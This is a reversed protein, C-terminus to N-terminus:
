ETETLKVTIKDPTSHSPQQQHLRYIKRLRHLLQRENRHHVARAVGDLIVTTKHADEFVILTQKV